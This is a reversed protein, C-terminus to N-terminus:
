AAVQDLAGVYKIAPLGDDTLSGTREFAHLPTEREWTLPLQMQRVDDGINMGIQMSWVLCGDLQWQEYGLAGPDAHQIILSFPRMLANSTGRQAEKQELSQSLWRYVNMEWATDLKQVTISGERTERGPKYGTRSTGALPVSIRNIQVEAAVEIAEHLLNGNLDLVRGHMGGFRWLAENLMVNSQVGIGQLPVGPQASM